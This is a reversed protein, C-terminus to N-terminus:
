RISSQQIKKAFYNALEKIIKDDREKQRGPYIYVVKVKRNKQLASEGVKLQQYLM